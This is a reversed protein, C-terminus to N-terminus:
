QAVEKGFWKEYLKAYTGNKKLADLAQNVAKEMEPKKKSVAIGYEEANLTEGALRAYESGGNKLFYQLVPLDCVVADSEKKKLTAFVEDMNEFTKVVTGKEKLTAAYEAGTTYDQAVVTKGQLDSFAKIGADEKRVIFALGSKYYPQSFLVVRKREETISMGAIVVDANGSNVAPILSNFDIHKITCKKYGIERAIAQILDADFGIVTEPDKGYFEFPAFTAETVVVLEDKVVAKYAANTSNDKLGGCGAAFIGLALILFGVAAILKNM